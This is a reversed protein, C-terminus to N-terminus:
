KNENPTDEKPKCTIQIDNIKFHKTWEDKIEYCNNQANDAPTDYYIYFSVTEHYKRGFLNTIEMSLSSHSGIYIMGNSNHENKYPKNELKFEHMYNKTNPTSENMKLNIISEISSDTFDIRRIDSKGKNTFEIDVYGKGGKISACRNAAEIDVIPMDRTEEIYLLRRSIENAKDATENAQETLIILKNSLENAKDAAKNVEKSSDNAQKNQWIAVAGLFVTGIFTLFGGFFNLWDSKYLGDGTPINGDTRFWLWILSYAVVSVTLAIASITIVKKNNM